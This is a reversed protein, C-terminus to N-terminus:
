PVEMLFYEWQCQLSLCVVSKIGKHVQKHIVQKVVGQGLM